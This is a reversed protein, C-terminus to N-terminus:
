LSILYQLFETVKYITRKESISYVYKKEPGTYFKYPVIGKPWWRDPNVIAGRGNSGDELNTELQINSILIKKSFSTIVM